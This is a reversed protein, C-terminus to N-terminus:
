TRGVLFISTEFKPNTSSRFRKRIDVLSATRALHRYKPKEPDDFKHDYIRGIGDLASTFSSLVSTDDVLYFHVGDECEWMAIQRGSHLAIYAQAYSGVLAVAIEIVKSM